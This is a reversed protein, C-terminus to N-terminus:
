NYYLQVTPRPHGELLNGGRSSKGYFWGFDASDTDLRYLMASLTILSYSSAPPILIPLPFQLM